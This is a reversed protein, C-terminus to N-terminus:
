HWIHSINSVNKCSYKFSSSDKECRKIKNNTNHSLNIIFHYSVSSVLLNSISKELLIFFKYFKESFNAFVLKMIENWYKFELDKLFIGNNTKHKM